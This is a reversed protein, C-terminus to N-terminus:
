RRGLLGGFFERAGRRGVFGVVRDKIGDALDGKPIKPSFATNRVSKAIEDLSAAGSPFHPSSSDSFIKTMAGARLDKVAKAVEI